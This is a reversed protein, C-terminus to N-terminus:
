QRSLNLIESATDEDTILIDLLEGRLAALIAEVKNRGAAVGITNELSKMTDLSTSILRGEIDSSVPKGDKDIFHCLIDGVAGKMSLLLFDNHTLMGNTLITANENMGGIGVVTLQSLTVMDLIQKVSPEDEIATVMDANKMMLPTPTLYLKANFINSRTNPLYYNVGGTLSVVNVPFESMNSLHNLVRSTTDGYGMNIFSSKDIRQNIYMAAAQAVSENVDKGDIPTPVVFADKLHFSATLEQEIRMRRSDSSRISFHVIGNKRAKDLLRNVRLRPIGLYEGIEQQTFEGIYYLWAVKVLLIEEYDYEKAM